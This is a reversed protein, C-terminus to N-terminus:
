YEDARLITMVRRCKERLPDQWYQLNQDYYDIKFFTQENQWRIGGFDRAGRPDNNPRFDNFTMVAGILGPVDPLAQVGRTIFWNGNPGTRHFEDNLQAIRAQEPTPPSQEPM